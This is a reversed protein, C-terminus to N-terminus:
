QHLHIPIALDRHVLPILSAALVFKVAQHHEDQVDLHIKQVPKKLRYILNLELLLSRPNLQHWKPALQENLMLIVVLHIKWYLSDTPRNLLKDAYKHPLM